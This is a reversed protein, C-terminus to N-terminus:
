VTALVKRQFIGASNIGWINEANGVAIYSLDGPIQEWVKDGDIYRFTGSLNVGWVSGDAGVGIDTLQGPIGQWNATAFDYRVVGAGNIGWVNTKSGVVVKTLSGGVQQWVAAGGIYLFIDGNAQVGWVTGDSAVSINSLQGPIQTWTGDGTSQFVGAYNIGWINSKSGVAVVSLNGKNTWGDTGDPNVVHVFTGGAGDVGWVTGDSAASIGALRGPVPRWFSWGIQGATWRCIALSNANMLCALQDSTCNVCNNNPIGYGGSPDCSCNTHNAADVYEDAAGFIHCTEHAFVAHLLEPNLMEDNYAICIRGAGAYGYWCQRYKTFFAVYSWDSDNLEKVADAFQHWGDSGVSYGMATLAPDRWVSECSTSDCSPQAAATIAVMRVSYNFTLNALPNSLALFQLGMMVQQVIIIKEEDSFALGQPGSVIALGVTVSGTMSVPVDPAGVSESRLAPDNYANRPGSMGEAGWGRGQLPHALATKQKAAVDKWATVFLQSLDDLDAPPMTSSTKLGAAEVGEPLTAEFAVDTFKQTVRAGLGELEGKAKAFDRTFLLEVHAM